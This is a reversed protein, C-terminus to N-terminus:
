LVELYRNMMQHPIGLEDLLARVRDLREMRVDYNNKGDKTAWQCWHEPKPLVIGYKEPNKELDCNPTVICASLASVEDILGRNEKLFDMTEALELETEGPFGVIINVLVKIGAKRCRELVTKADAATYGKKMLGLVKDSFSEVGFVLSTCGSKRLLGLFEDDMRKDIVAQGSYAMRINEEVTLKAFRGLSKLDANILLDLFQFDHGGYREKYLKIREIVKEPSRRRFKPTIVNDNCFACRNVCGRGM